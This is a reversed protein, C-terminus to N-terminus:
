IPHLFLKNLHDQFAEFAVGGTGGVQFGQAARAVAEHDHHRVESTEKAAKTVRQLITM